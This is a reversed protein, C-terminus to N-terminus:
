FSPVVVLCWVAGSTAAVSEIKLCGACLEANGRRPNRGFNQTM